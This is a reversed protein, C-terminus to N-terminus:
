NRMTTNRSELSWQHYERPLISPHTPISKSGECGHSRAINGVTLFFFTQLFFDPQSQFSIMAGYNADSLLHKTEPVKDGCGPVAALKEKRPSRYIQRLRTRMCMARERGPRSRKLSLQIIEKDTEKKRFICERIDQKREDIKQVHHVKKRKLKPVGGITGIIRSKM